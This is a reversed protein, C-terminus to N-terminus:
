STCHEDGEIAQGQRGEARRAELYEQVDGGTGETSGRGRAPSIEKKEGTETRNERPGRGRMESCEGM